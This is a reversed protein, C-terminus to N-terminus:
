ECQGFLTGCDSAMSGFEAVGPLAMAEQMWPLKQYYAAYILTANNPSLNQFQYDTSKKLSKNISSRIWAANVMSISAGYTAGLASFGVPVGVGLARKAQKDKSGRTEFAYHWGVIGAPVAGALGLKAGTKGGQKAAASSTQLGVVRERM